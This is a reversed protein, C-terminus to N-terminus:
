QEEPEEPEEPPPTLWPPPTVGPPLNLDPGLVHRNSPTSYRDSEMLARVEAEAQDLDTLRALVQTPVAHRDGIIALFLHEAGVHEHGFETAIKSAAAVLARYRPTPTPETTDTM